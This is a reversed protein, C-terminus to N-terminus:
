PAISTAVIELVRRTRARYIFDAADAPLIASTITDAESQPNLFLWLQIPRGKPNRGDYARLELEGQKEDSLLRGLAFGAERYEELTNSIEKELDPFQARRVGKVRIMGSIAGDENEQYLAIGAKGDPAEEERPMWSAPHSYHLGMGDLRGTKLPEVTAQASKQQFAFSAVAVGFQRAHQEYIAAPSVAVLLLLRNGDVKMALRGTVPTGEIAFGVLSDAIQPSVEKLVKTEYGLKAIYDRLMDAASIERDLLMARLGISSTGTAKGDHFFALTTLKDTRLRREEIRPTAEVWSRDVLVKYSADPQVGPDKEKWEFLRAIDSKSYPDTLPLDAAMAKNGEAHLPGSAALAAMLALLAGARRISSISRSRM